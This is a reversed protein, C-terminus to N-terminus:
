FTKRKEKIGRLNLGSRYPVEERWYSQFFFYLTFNVKGEIKWKYYFLWYFLAKKLSIISPNIIKQFPNFINNKRIRCWFWYFRVPQYQAQRKMLLVIYKWSSTFNNVPSNSIFRNLVFCFSCTAQISVLHM